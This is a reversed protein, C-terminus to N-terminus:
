GNNTEEVQEADIIYSSNAVRIRNGGMPIIKEISMFYDNLSISTTTVVDYEFERGIFKGDTTNIIKYM